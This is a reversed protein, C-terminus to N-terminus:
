FIFDIYKGCGNGDFGASVALAMDAIIYNDFLFLINEKIVKKRNLQEEM